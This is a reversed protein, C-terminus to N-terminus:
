VDNNHAKRLKSLLLSRWKERSSFSCQLIHDRDEVKGCYLCHETTLSNYRNAWRATPLLDNCLKTIQTRRHRFRGITQNYADWDISAFILPNWKFRNEVYAIYQPVTAAERIWQKLRACIVKGAIHLQVSNSPLRPILPRQSPYMCQFLGAKADADVNLQAELSLAAYPTTADQHGKVHCLTPLFQFTRLSQSIEHTVDWDSLLTLNPFPKPYPLSSEVRTLLGQNDTLM